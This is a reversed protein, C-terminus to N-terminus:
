KFKRKLSYFTGTITSYIGVIDIVHFMSKYLYRYFPDTIDQAGVEVFEQVFPGLVGYEIFLTIVLIVIYYLFDGLKDM